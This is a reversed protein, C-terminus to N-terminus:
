TCPSLVPLSPCPHGQESLLTWGCLRGWSTLTPQAHHSMGTFGASQSASSPPDSSNLLELGAQGIHCFAMEVLFICFNALHPSTHRYDWSSLLCSFRKFRPPPPQLSGLNHWQVTAQAVCLSETELFFLPLPLFCVQLVRRFHSAMPPTLLRRPPVSTVHSYHGILWGELVAPFFLLPM